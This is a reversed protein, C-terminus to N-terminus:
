SEAPSRARSFRARNDGAGSDDPSKGPQYDSCHLCDDITTTDHTPHSCAFVKVKVNGRCSPCERLAIQAGLYECPGHRVIFQGPPFERFPSPPPQQWHACIRCVASTVRNDAVHVKPHACLFLRAAPDDDRRSHCDPLEPDPAM